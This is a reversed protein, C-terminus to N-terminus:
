RILVFGAWHYPQRPYAERMARQTTQFAELTNNSASLEDYFTTMFEATTEDNVSWLTALIQDVGALKFGRVLGLTGEQEDIHGLATECASLVVLKCDDLPLTAVEMATLIGDERGMTSLTDIGMWKWNGSTMILGSRVMPYPSNRYVYRLSQKSITTDSYDM